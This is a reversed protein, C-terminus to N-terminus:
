RMGSFRCRAANPDCRPMTHLERLRFMCFDARVSGCRLIVLHADWYSVAYPVSSREHGGCVQVECCDPRLATDYATVASPVYGCRTVGRAACGSFLASVAACSSAISTLRYSRVYVALGRLPVRGWRMGRLVTGQLMRSEACYRICSGCVSDILQANSGRM